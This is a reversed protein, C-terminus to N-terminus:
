KLSRREEPISLDTLKIPNNQLRKVIKNEARDIEYELQPESLRLQERKSITRTIEQRYIATDREILAKEAEIKAREAEYKAKNRNHRWDAIKGASEIFPILAKAVFASGIITEILGPSQISLSSVIIKHELKIPRGNRVWFRGFFGSSQWAGM